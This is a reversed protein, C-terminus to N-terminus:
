LAAFKDAWVSEAAAGVEKANWGAYVEDPIVFPGHAWDLQERTLKIEDDGLPAGHCDHTGALNPSGFGIITKCCILTPKDPSLSQRKLRRTSHMPTM